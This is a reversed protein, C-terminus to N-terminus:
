GVSRRYLRAEEAAIRLVNENNIASVVRGFQETMFARDAARVKTADLGRARERMTAIWYVVAFAALGCLTAVIIIVIRDPSTAADM